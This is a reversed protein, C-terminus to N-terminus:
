AGSLNRAAWIPTRSFRVCWQRELRMIEANFAALLASERCEGAQELPDALGLEEAHLLRAHFEPSFHPRLELFFGRQELFATFRIDRGSQAWRELIRRGELVLTTRVIQSEDDASAVPPALLRVAGGSAPALRGLLYITTLLILGVGGAVLPTVQLSSLVGAFGAAHGLVIMLLGGGVGWKLDRLM